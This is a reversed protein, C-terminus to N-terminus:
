YLLMASGTCNVDLEEGLNVELLFFVGLNSPLM